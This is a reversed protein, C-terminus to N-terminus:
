ARAFSSSIRGHRLLPSCLGSLPASYVHDIGGAHSLMIYPPPYVQTEPHGHGKLSSQLMLM